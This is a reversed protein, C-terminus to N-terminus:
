FALEDLHELTHKWLAFYRNQMLWSETGQEFANTSSSMTDLRSVLGSVYRAWCLVFLPKLWETSLRLQQAYNV